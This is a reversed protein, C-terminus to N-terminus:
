IARDMVHVIPLVVRPFVCSDRVMMPERPTPLECKERCFDVAESDMCIVLCTAM